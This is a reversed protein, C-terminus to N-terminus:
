IKKQLSSLEKRLELSRKESATKVEDRINTFYSRIRDRLLNGSVPAFLLALLSGLIGGLIVGLFFKGFNRM